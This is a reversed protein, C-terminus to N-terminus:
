IILKYGQGYNFDIQYQILHDVVGTKFVVNSTVVTLPRVDGNAEDYVWYIEDSVLLQKLIENFSEPLFWSNVSIGLKSDTIYNRVASQYGEYSLTKSNWTGLQPEYTRKETNFSNRSIMNFNLFDFQGFRNKWKIRVNPYKQECAIEYKIAAGLPTTGNYAQVTFWEMGITSVPFGAESPGIPYTRIQTSTTGTTAALSYDATIGLNTTYVIKNPQVGYGSDGVFVGAVGTNTTFCSQSAPGDTMLPWFQSKEYVPQGIPEQFIAYGDLAKTTSTITHTSSTVYTNSSGSLYQYFLDAKVFKVNSQNSELFDTMTSNVIRSVEFIGTFSENPYKILQYEYSGSASPTGSWIFLNCVYTFGPNALDTSSSIAYVMPSQSLNVTAPSQLLTLAM